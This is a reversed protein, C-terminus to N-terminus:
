GFHSAIWQSIMQGFNQQGTQAAYNMCATKPDGNGYQNIMDMYANGNPIKTLLKNFEAQPDQSSMIQSALSNAAEMPKQIDM